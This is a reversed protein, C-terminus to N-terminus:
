PPPADEDGPPPPLDPRVSLAVTVRRVLTPLSWAVLYREITEPVARPRAADVDVALDRRIGMLAVNRLFVSTSPDALDDLLAQGLPRGLVSRCGIPDAVADAVCSFAALLQAARKPGIGPVGPLNDSTDGRLAAYELYQEPRVGVERLLSAPTVEVAADLGSGLRLLTTAGSVLAYADRDSTAVTCRWGASEAAAAASGLVDDAEWGEPQVVTVGLRPLLWVLDDLQVSLALDKEPRQAKYTDCRERRTSRRRCDFGVVLADPGVKECIGALLALFGYVAGRPRGEDDAITDAPYAHYARHALSNGDLVLLVPAPPGPPRAPAAPAPPRPARPDRAPRPHVAVQELGANPSDLDFLTLEPM